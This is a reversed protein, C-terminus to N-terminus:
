CSVMAIVFVCSARFPEFRVWLQAGARLDLRGVGGRDRVGGGAAVRLM